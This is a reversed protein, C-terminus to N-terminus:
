MAWLPSGLMREIRLRCIIVFAVAFLAQKAPLWCSMWGGVLLVRNLQTFWCAGSCSGRSVSFFALFLAILSLKRSEFACLSRILACIALLPVQFCGVCVSETVFQTLASLLSQLLYFNSSKLKIRSKTFDSFTMQTVSSARLATQQVKRGCIASISNAFTIKASNEYDRSTVRSAKAEVAGLSEFLRWSDSINLNGRQVPVM